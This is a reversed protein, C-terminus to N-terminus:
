LSPKPGGPFEYAPAAEFPLRAGAAGRCCCRTQADKAVMALRQWHMMQAVGEMVKKRAEGESGASAGGASASSERQEAKSGCGLVSVLSM